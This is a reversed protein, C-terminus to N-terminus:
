WVNELHFCLEPFSISAPKLTLLIFRYNHTHNTDTSTLPDRTAVLILIADIHSHISTNKELMASIAVFLATNSCTDVESPKLATVM